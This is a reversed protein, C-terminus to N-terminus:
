EDSSQLNPIVYVVKSAMARLTRIGYIEILSIICDTINNQNQLIVAFKSVLSRNTFTIIDDSKNLLLAVQRIGFDNFAYQCRPAILAPISMM